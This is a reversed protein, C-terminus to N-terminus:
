KYSKRAAWNLRATAAAYLYCVCLIQFCMFISVSYNCAIVVIILNNFLHGYQALFDLVPWLNMARYVMFPTTFRLGEYFQILHEHTYHERKTYITTSETSNKNNQTSSKKEVIETAEFLAKYDEEEFM